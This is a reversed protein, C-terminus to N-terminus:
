LAISAIRAPPRLSCHAAGVFRGQVVASRHCLRLVHHPQLLDGPPRVQRCRRRAAGSHCHPRRQPARAAAAPRGRRGTQPRSEVRRRTTRVRRAVAHGLLAAFVYISEAATCENASTPQAARLASRVVVPASGAAACNCDAFNAQKGLALEQTGVQWLISGMFGLVMGTILQLPLGPRGPADDAGMAPRLPFRWAVSSTFSVM